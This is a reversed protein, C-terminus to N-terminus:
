GRREIMIREEDVLAIRGNISAHVAAGLTDAGGAGEPITAVVDGERVEDDVAVAPKSPTGRHQLLPIEVRRPATSLGRRLVREQYATLQLRQVIRSSPIKRYERMGDVAIDREAFSPRVGEAHLRDRILANVLHPALGMTCGYVTCLGCQSCLVANHIVETPADIGYVIQRMIRHPEIEHGLLHRPCLETCFSCQCCVSRCQKLIFELSTTKKQVLASNRPLVIIGSTTKGVPVALDTEVTGMMPGGIIVVPDDVLCGGCLAIVEGLSTGIHAYLVSPSAVEGTCTLYRGTVPRNEEVANCVNLVTEVNDVMCGVDPPIGGEPVIRGTIENVLVYEDGAPYFDGMPFLIVDSRNGLYEAVRRLKGAHKEKIAIYGRSAGCAKMMYELGRVIRDGETELLYRDSGLLPECEVGNVIVTDVATCLKLHTPFGAGGAGVVGAERVHEVIDMNSGTYWKGKKKL